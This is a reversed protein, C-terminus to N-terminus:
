LEAVELEAYKKVYERIKIDKEEIASELPLPFLDSKLQVRGGGYVELDDMSEVILLYTHPNGVWSRDASTVKTVGYSELVSYHGKIYKETSVTDEGAKIVRIRVKMIDNILCTLTLM